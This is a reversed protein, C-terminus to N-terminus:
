CEHEWGNGKGSTRGSRLLGGRTSGAVQIGRISGPRSAAHIQFCRTTATVLYPTESKSRHTEVATTINVWASQRSRVADHTPRRVAARVTAQLQPRRNGKDHGGRCYGTTPAEWQRRRTWEAAEWGSLGRTVISVHAGGRVDAGRGECARRSTM